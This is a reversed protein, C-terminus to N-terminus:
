DRFHRRSYDDPYVQEAPEPEPLANERLGHRISVIAMITCIVALVAAVILLARESM